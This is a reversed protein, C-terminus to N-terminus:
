HEIIVESKVSLGIFCNRHASDHMKDLEEKDVPTEEAFTIVPKLIIKTVMMKGTEAKDLIATASDSYSLVIKKKKSAVALFTLMHCSSVAAALLEEPNTNEPNGFTAKTSSSLINQGGEFHIQHNRNYTEYTFEESGKKWALDIKHESM